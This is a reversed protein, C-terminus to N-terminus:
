TATSRFNWMQLNQKFLKNMYIAQEVNKSAIYIKLVAFFFFFCQLFYATICLLVVNSYNKCCVSSIAIILILMM